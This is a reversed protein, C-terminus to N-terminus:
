DIYQTFVYTGPETDSADTDMGCVTFGDTEAEETLDTHDLVSPGGSGQTIVCRVTAKTAPHDKWEVWYYVDNGLRVSSVNNAPRSEDGQAVFGTTFGQDVLTTARASGTIGLALVAAAMGMAARRDFIM